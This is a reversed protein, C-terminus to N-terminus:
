VGLLEESLSITHVELTITANPYDSVEYHLNDWYFQWPLKELNNFYAITSMYGGQLQLVFSHRFLGQQGAVKNQSKSVNDASMANTTEVGTPLLSVVPMNEVSLLKLGKNQVLVRELVEPMLRPPILGLVTKQINSNLEDLESQLQNLLQEKSRNVGATLEATLLQQESRQQAIQLKLRIAEKKFLSRETLLPDIFLTQLSLTVLVSICFGVLVRERLQLGDVKRQLELLRENM